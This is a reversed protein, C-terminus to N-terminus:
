QSLVKSLLTQGTTKVQEFADGGSSEPKQRRSTTLWKWCPEIRSDGVRGSAAAEDSWPYSGSAAAEKATMALPRIRYRVKGDWFVLQEALIPQGILERVTEDRPAFAENFRETAESASPVATMLNVSAGIFSLHKADLIGMVSEFYRPM